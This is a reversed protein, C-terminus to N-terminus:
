FVFCFLILFRPVHGFSFHPWLIPFPTFFLPLWSHVLLGYLTQLFGFSSVQTSGTGKCVEFSNGLPVGMGNIKFPLWDCKEWLTEGCILYLYTLSYARHWVSGLAQLIIAQLGILHKSLPHAQLVNVQAIERGGKGGGGRM